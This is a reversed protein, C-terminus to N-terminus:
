RELSEGVGLEGLLDVARLRGALVALRVDEVDVRLARAVDEPECAEGKSAADMWARVIRADAPPMGDCVRDILDDSEFPSVLTGSPDDPAQVELVELDSYTSPETDALDTPSFFGMSRSTENLADCVEQVTAGELESMEKRIRRARRRVRYMGAAQAFGSESDAWQKSANRMRMTLYAAFRYDDPAEGRRERDILISVQEWALSEIEYCDDGTVHWAQCAQYAIQRVGPAWSEILSDLTGSDLAARLDAVPMDMPRRM